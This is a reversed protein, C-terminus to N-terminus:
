KLFEFVNLSFLDKKLLYLCILSVSIIDLLLDPNKTISIFLTGILGRNIFGYRYNILWEATMFSHGKNNNLEVFYKFLPLYILFLALFISNKNLYNKIMQM